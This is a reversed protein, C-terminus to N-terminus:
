QSIGLNNLSSEQVACIIYRLITPPNSRILQFSISRDHCIRPVAGIDTQPSQPCGAEFFLNSVPIDRYLFELWELAVNPLSGNRHM